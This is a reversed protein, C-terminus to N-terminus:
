DRVDMNSDQSCPYEAMRPRFMLAVSTIAPTWLSCAPKCTRLCHRRATLWTKKVAKETILQCELEVYGLNKM